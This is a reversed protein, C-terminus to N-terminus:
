FNEDDDGDEDAGDAEDLLKQPDTVGVDDDEVPPMVLVSSGGEPPAAGDEEDGGEDDDGDPDIGDGVARRVPAAAQGGEVAFLKPQRFEAIEDPTMVREGVLEGTDLRVTRFVNRRVDAEEQCRVPREEKGAHLMKRLDEIEKKKEKLKGRAEQAALKAEAELEGAETVARVFMASKTATEEPTLPCLLKEDFTRIDM